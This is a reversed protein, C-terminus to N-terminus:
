LTSSFINSLNTLVDEHDQLYQLEKKIEENTKALREEDFNGFSAMLRQINWVNLANEFMKIIQQYDAYCYYLIYGSILSYLLDYNEVSKIEPSSGLDINTYELLVNWFKYLELYLINEEIDNGEEFEAEFLMNSIIVTKDVIPLYPVVKIQKVYEQIEELNIDGNVYAQCKQILEEIPIVVDEDPKEGNLEDNKDLVSMNKVNEM